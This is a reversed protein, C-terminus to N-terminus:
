LKDQCNIVPMINVGFDNKYTEMFLKKSVKDPIRTAAVAIFELRTFFASLLGSDDLEPLPPEQYQSLVLNIVNKV